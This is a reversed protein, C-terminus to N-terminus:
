QGLYPGLVASPDEALINSLVEGGPLIVDFRSCSSRVEPMLQISKYVDSLCDTATAHIRCLEEGDMTTLQMSTGDLSAQLVLKRGLTCTYTLGGELAPLDCQGDSNRGCAVATGDSRLLVTHADGAVVM